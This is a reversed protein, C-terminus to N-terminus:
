RRGRRISPGPCTLFRWNPGWELTATQGGVRRGADHGGGGKLLVVGQLPRKLNKFAQNCNIWSMTGAAAVGTAKLSPTTKM